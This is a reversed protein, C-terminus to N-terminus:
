GSNRVNEGNEDIQIGCTRFANMTAQVDEGLLLDKFNSEGNAISGLMVAATPFRNIEPFKICVLFDM